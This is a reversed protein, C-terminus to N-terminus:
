ATGGRIALRKQKGLIKVLQAGGFTAILEPEPGERSSIVDIKMTGLYGPPHSLPQGPKEERRVIM